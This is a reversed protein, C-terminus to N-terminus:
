GRGSMNDYNQFILWFQSLFFSLFSLSFVFCNKQCEREIEVNRNEASNNNIWRRFIVNIGYFENNLWGYFCEVVDRSIYFLCFYLLLLLLAFYILQFHFSLLLTSFSVFNHLQAKISGFNQNSQLHLLTVSSTALLSRPVYKKTWENVHAYLFSICILMYHWHLLTFLAEFKTIIETKRAIENKTRIM